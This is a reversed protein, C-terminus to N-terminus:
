CLLPPLSPSSPPRSGAQLIYLHNFCEVGDYGGFVYRQGSQALFSSEILVCLKPGIATATHLCVPPPSDGAVKAQTCQVVSAVIKASGSLSRTRVKAKLSLCMFTTSSCTAALTEALSWCGTISQNRHANIILLAFAPAYTPCSCGM